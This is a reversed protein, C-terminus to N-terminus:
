TRPRSCGGCSATCCRADRVGARRLGQDHVPRAPAGRRRDRRGAHGAARRRLGDARPPAGALARQGQRRDAARRRARLKRLAERCSAAAAGAHAYASREEDACSASAPAPSAATPTTAQDRVRARRAARLQRAAALRPLRGGRAGRRRRLPPQRARALSIMSEVRQTMAGFDTVTSRVALLVRAVDDELEDLERDTLRRALDFHM